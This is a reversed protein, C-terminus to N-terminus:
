SIELPKPGSHGISSRLIFRTELPLMALYGIATWILLPAKPLNSALALVVAAVSAVGFRIGMAALALIMTNRPEARVVATPLAGLVCAVFGISCGVVLAPLSGPGALRSTPLVGLAILALTLGAATAVFVSYRSM